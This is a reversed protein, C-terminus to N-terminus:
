DPQGCSAASPALQCCRGSGLLKRHLALCERLPTLTCQVARSSSGRCETNVSPLVRIRATDVGKRCPSYLWTSCVLAMQRTPLATGRADLEVALAALTAAAASTV